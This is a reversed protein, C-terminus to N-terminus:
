KLMSCVNRITRRGMIRRICRGGAGEARSAAAPDSACDADVRRQRRREEERVEPTGAETPLLRRIKVHDAAAAKARDGRGAREEKAARGGCGDRGRDDGRM